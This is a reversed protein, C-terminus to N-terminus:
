ILLYITPEVRTTVVDYCYVVEGATVFVSSLFSLQRLPVARHKMYSFIESIWELDSFTMRFSVNSYPMYCTVILIGNFSHRFRTGNRLWEADFLPTVKFDPNLIVWSWQFYYWKFAKTSNGIRRRYCTHGYRTDNRLYLSINTSFRSKKMDGANSM